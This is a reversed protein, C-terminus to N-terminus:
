AAPTLVSESLRVLTTAADAARAYLFGQGLRCGMEALREAQARTEIGEAVIRRDLQQAIDIMAAVIVASDHDILLRDIFSRDIKIVDTKLAMLHTLSAFGTGFDDLAVLFGSRRLSGVTDAVDRFPDDMAVLETIELVVRGPPVGASAFAGVLREALGEEAFDAMSLNVGVHGFDIGADLWAAMDRAVEALMRDTMARALGPDAFAAQFDGATVIAGDRRRMRLLAELGIIRGSDLRVLPQYFPLIRDEDLATAVQRLLARRREAVEGMSPEYRLYGRRGSRRSAALALEANLRLFEPAIGDPGFLAGGIAVGQDLPGFRSRGAPGHLAAMVSEGAEKLSAHDLCPDVIVAFRDGGLSAPWFGRDLRSLREAMEAVLRDSGPDDIAPVFTEVRDLGLLLLGFHSAPDACLDGLVTEFSRRNPLNTLPDFRSLRQRIEEGDSREIAIAGLHVVAEVLQKELRSPGRTERFYLAFTAIVTGDTALLPSSWCAALGLPLALARYDDWLPDAAIDRVTVPRALWAATGCSGVTPGIALGELAQSYSAPLSPAALPHLAGGRIRVLTCIAGPALTEVRRCVLNAVDDLPTGLAIAELIENQFQQVVSGIPESM